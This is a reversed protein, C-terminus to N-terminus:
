KTILWDPLENVPNHTHYLPVAKLYATYAEIASDYFGLSFRKHNVRIRARWKGSSSDWSVGKYGSTNNPHVNTNQCQQSPTLYRLNSKRNDTKVRNAHDISHSPWEGYICLWAIRHALYRKKGLQIELYGDKNLKGTVRGTSLRLFEGTDPNYTVLRNVQDILSEHKKM